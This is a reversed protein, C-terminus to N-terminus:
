FFFENFPIQGLDAAFRPFGSRYMQGTKLLTIRKAESLMLLDVFSKLYVEIDRNQTFDMHEMKGPITFVYQLKGIEQLFSPSDSTVLIKKTHFYGNDYLESIKNKCLLILCNRESEPLIQFNGEKFDGLLQQFRLTVAEYPRSLHKRCLNIRESLHQSPKFLEKYLQNYNPSASNM